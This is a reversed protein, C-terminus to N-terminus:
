VVICRGVNQVEVMDLQLADYPCSDAQVTLSRPAVYCAFVCIHKVDM